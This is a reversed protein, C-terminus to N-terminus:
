RRTSRLTDFIVLTVLPCDRSNRISAYLTVLVGVNRFGPRSMLAAFKPCIVRVRPPGRTM